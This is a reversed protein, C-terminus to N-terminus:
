EATSMRRKTVLLIVAALVLIGGIIYIMTTGVGGTSPLTSGPQNLIAVETITQPDNDEGPITLVGDEGITVAVVEATNYGSPTTTEKLYYTGLDLGDITFKGTSDTVIEETTSDPNVKYVTTTGVQTVTVAQTCAEDKYLTFGAGALPTKNSESGTYKFVPISWTYVKTIKDPTKGTSTSYPNNSYNLYATNPNGESGIVANENVTASYVVEVVTSATAGHTLVDTITVTLSNGSQALTYENATLTKSGVKVSTIAGFTLGASMTDNFIVKYTKYGIIDTPMTATLSYNVSDGISANADDVTKELTPVGSKSKIETNKSVSMIFATYAGDETPAVSTKILYYGATLGSLTCTTAGEAVEASVCTTSLYSSVEEAFAAANADTLAAAKDAANGLATQGDATVGTGWTVNSLKGDEDLDGTFIQYAEYTHGASTNTITITYTTDEAFVTASVSLVMILALLLTTIRRTLKMDYTGKRM